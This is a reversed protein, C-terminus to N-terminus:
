GHPLFDPWGEGEAAEKIVQNRKELLRTMYSELFLLDVISGLFGFPSDYDFVDKMQTGLGTESFHHDHTFSKFPGAAMVDQLHVPPECVTIKSTLRQKMGFHVAEWTVTEGLGILGSMRGAIAKEGTHGMSRQHLDISRALDFVREILAKLEAGLEIVPM